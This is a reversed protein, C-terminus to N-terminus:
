QKYIIYYDNVLDQPLRKIEVQKFGAEALMRLATQQGWMTGLGMGEYALSVTM